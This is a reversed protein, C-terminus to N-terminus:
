IHRSFLYSDNYSWNTRQLAQFTSLTYFNVCTRIQSGNLGLSWHLTNNSSVSSKCLQCKATLSQCVTLLVVAYAWTGQKTVKHATCHQPFSITLTVCCIYWHQLIWTFYCPTLLHFLYFCSMNNGEKHKYASTSLFTPFSMLWIAIIDMAQESVFSFYCAGWRKCSAEATEECPLDQCQPAEVGEYHVRSDEKTAPWLHHPTSLSGTENAPTFLWIEPRQHVTVHYALNEKQVTCPSFETSSLQQWDLHPRAM